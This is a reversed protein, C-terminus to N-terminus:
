EKLVDIIEMVKKVYTKINEPLENDLPDITIETVEGDKKFAIILIDQDLCGPCGFSTEETNLLEDPIEKEAIKAKEFKSDPLPDSKFYVDQYGIIKNVDDEYLAGNELKFLTSCNEMCFGNYVGFVLFDFVNDSNREKACSFLIIILSFSLFYKKM